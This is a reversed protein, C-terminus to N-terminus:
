MLQTAVKKPGPADSCALHVKGCGDVLETQGRQLAVAPAGLFPDVAAVRRRGPIEGQAQRAAFGLGPVGHLRAKDAGELPDALQAFGFAETGPQLSDDDILDHVLM